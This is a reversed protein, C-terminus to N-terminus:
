CVIKRVTRNATVTFRCGRRFHFRVVNVFDARAVICAANIENGVNKWKTALPIAFWRAGHYGLKAPCQAGREEHKYYCRRLAPLGM